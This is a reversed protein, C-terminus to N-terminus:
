NQETANIIWTQRWDAARGSLHPPLREPHFKPPMGVEFPCLDPWRGKRHVLQVQPHQVGLDMLVFSSGCFFIHTFIAFNAESPWRLELFCLVKSLTCSLKQKTIECHNPLTQYYWHLEWLNTVGCGLSYGGRNQELIKDMFADRSFCLGASGSAELSIRFTLSWM